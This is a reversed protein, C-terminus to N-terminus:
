PYKQRWEDSEERGFFLDAAVQEIEERLELKSLWGAPIAAQGLLSGLINGALSGTSDSDGSHNVALLVGRAFDAEAVLSCYVAIALAEEAIWGEGLSAISNPGPTRRPNEALSQAQTLASLVEDYRSDNALVSCVFKLAEPLSDGSVIRHILLAFAGASAWGTPHGHTLAALECGVSFALDDPDAHAHLIFDCSNFFLGVPAVRMVGGCGKSQNLPLEPTGKKASKLASLCTNGPARRAFLDPISILWGNRIVADASDVGTTGQTLLWRQYSGYTVPGFALGIGKLGERHWARLLGEATFLTMQTDDTIAGVRGYAPALDALGQAGYTGKIETWSDFEIAAGLADGEAGGLLCGIFHAPSRRDHLLGYQRVYSEQQRTEISGPRTARVLQIAQDPAFHFERLLCAAVLGTRGLGGRCHLVVKKGQHLLAKIERASEAWLREFREDPVDVDVIPLHYWRKMKRSAMESLDPVKVLAFEHTEMLTVLAHAGWRVIAVLDAELDRDWYGETHVGTDKKGPCFTLGLIGACGPIKIEDIRLPHSQSTKVTASDSLKM